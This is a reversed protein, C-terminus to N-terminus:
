WKQAESYKNEGDRGDTHYSRKINGTNPHYIHTRWQHWAQRGGRIYENHLAGHLVDEIFCRSAESFYASMIRRYFETSAVHPRQSWQVTEQYEGDLELMMHSHEKPVHAEHHFRIMNSGGYSIMAFVRKWDIPEDIVLPTDQEVYMVYPTDIKRLVDIMMGSQHMHESHIIPYIDHKWMIRRIFEAYKESMHRQEQRVGDFTVYITVDSMHHRISEITEDLIYTEPHSKIPSVPVVVSLEDNIGLQKRLKKRMDIKERMWWAQIDNNLSPFEKSMDDVYGPFSEWNSITPIPTNEWFYAMDETPTKTDVIPVCGLELAEYARFTDVTEPGSPCPVIRARKMYENYEDQPYGSTFSQTVMIKGAPAKKMAEFAERRRSHTIQGAFFWEIDKEPVEGKITHPTYGCGLKHVGEQKRPNQVWIEIDDHKVEDIPFLSEEDGMIFLVCKKLKKIERNIEKALKYHSRGPIVVVGIDARPLSSVDVSDIGRFLYDLIAYDWYGRNPTDEILSLYYIM